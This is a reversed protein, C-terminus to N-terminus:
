PGQKRPVEYATVPYVTDPDIAEYVVMLHRGTGTDGFVVPRGSSRSVDVDTANQLIEEVEEKMIGHAACHQVNGDPDDDLDWIIADFPM